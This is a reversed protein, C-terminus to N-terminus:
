RTRITGISEWVEYTTSLKGEPDTFETRALVIRLGGCDLNVAASSGNSLYATSPRFKCPNRSRESVKEAAFFLANFIDHSTGAESTRREAGVVTNGRTWIVSFTNAWEGTAPGWIWWARLPLKASAEEAQVKFNEASLDSVVQTVPMGLHIERGGILISLPETQCIGPVGSLALLSATLILRTGSSRV